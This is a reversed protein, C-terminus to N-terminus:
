SVSNWSGAKPGTMVVSTVGRCFGRTRFSPKFQSGFPSQLIMQLLGDNLNNNSLLVNMGLENM